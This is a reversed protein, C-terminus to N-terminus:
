IESHSGYRRWCPQIPGVDLEGFGEHTAGPDITSMSGSLDLILEINTNTSTLTISKTAGQAVPSDDEINVNLTSTASPSGSVLNAATVPIPIIKVDEGATGVGGIPNHDIPKFLTTKYTGANDITVTLVTQANATGTLTQTGNGTWTITAGGSTYPGGTPTGLTVSTAGTVTFQGGDTKSDTTDAAATTGATDAIGGPLGEESVSSTRATSISPKDNDIITGTGSASTNTVVGATVTAGLTFTETSEGATDNVIATRVLVSTKGAAITAASATAWTTGNDTSVQLANQAGTDTGVIAGTVGVPGNALALNFSVAQASQNSLSVTFVAYLDTGETVSVNSVSLTPTPNITATAPTADTTGSNDTVTFTFTV